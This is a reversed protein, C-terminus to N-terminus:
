FDISRCEKNLIALIYNPKELEAYFSEIYKLLHNREKESLYTFSSITEMIEDKKQMFLGIVKLYAEDNDRCYGLYERERVDKISTWEQPKAYNTGVFGAYDFDYPVPIVKQTLQGLPKIFKTNHGSKIRWDTNGIMYQFLAVVDAEYDSVNVGQVNAGDVEVSETRKVLLEIPELLIGYRKYHRGKKGTDTYDINLLRVRFSNNSLINYLKYVLFERLLYNSYSKSTSCHTVMKIKRFGKLESNEIPDTKFNLYIPPFFCIEKRNNGRAKLRINKTVSYGEYDIVLEADLYEGKMKNRIFSTIDYKLQLNIPTEDGFIAIDPITDSVADISANYSVTDDYSIPDSQAFVFVSLFIVSVFLVLTKM